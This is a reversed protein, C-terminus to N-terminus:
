AWGGRGKVGFRMRFDSASLLSSILGTRNVEVGAYRTTVCKDEEIQEAQRTTSVQGNRVISGIPRDPNHFHSLQPYFM